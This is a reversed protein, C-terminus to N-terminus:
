FRKVRHGSKHARERAEGVERLGLLLGDLIEWRAQSDDPGPAVDHGRALCGRLAAEDEVTLEAAIPQEIRAPPLDEGKVQQAIDGVQLVQVEGDAFVAERSHGLGRDRQDRVLAQAREGGGEGVEGGREPAGQQDIGPDLTGPKDAQAPAGGVLPGGMENALQVQPERRDAQRGVVAVPERERLGRQGVRQTERAYVDVAGERRHALLVKEGQPAADEGDVVPVPEDFSAAEVRAVEVQRPLGRRHAGRDRM